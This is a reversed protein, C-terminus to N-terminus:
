MWSYLRGPNFIRQPDFAQKLARHVGQQAPTRPHLVEGNRDGGRYLSLQGGMGEAVPILQSWERADRLWRQAGGWDLLWPGDGDHAAAPRGAIRWLPGDGSFFDLRQERLSSWFEADGQLLEGGRQRLRDGVAADLGSYRLYLRGGIWCAGSLPGGQRSEESMIRLAEIADMELIATARREPRPFVRLTVETILGLTGMAGAQLRSVDYGAVNKMVRGGFHLQEGRGNVLRVGLVHDRFSGLWPRAPGSQNSALTGGVTAGGFEPPECGLCQGHAKLQENLDALTTGCRAAVVLESPEYEILGTHEATCLVEGAACRGMFAKSDNGVIRLPTNSAIAARVREVLEKGRDAM